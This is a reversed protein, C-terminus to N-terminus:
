EVPWFQEPINERFIEDAFAFSFDGNARIGHADALEETYIAYPYVTVNALDAEYHTVLPIATINTFVVEGTEESLVADLDLAAGLMALPSSVQASIFNGLSYAVFSQGGGPKDLYEMTQVTHPQTGLILDAGWDTFDRALAKQEATVTNTIEVGWHVSVIVADALTDAEEIMKQMQARQATYVLRSPADLSLTLSNTHEMFGVFAFSIGNIEMLPITDLARQDRYAGFHLIRHSDWFDLTSLLGKEGKDLIHNNAHSIANFGMDIVKEGLADPSNFQPYTSPPYINAIPTEQNLVALEAPEVLPSVYQFAYDFDYGGDLSRSQAQLYIAEHILNDGAAFIHVTPSVAPEPEPASPIAEPLAAATVESKQINPISVAAPAAQERCGAAALLVCLVGTSFIQKKM